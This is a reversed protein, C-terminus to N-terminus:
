EEIVETGKPAKFTFLRDDIATGEQAGAFTITSTNGFKDFITINTIRGKEDIVLVLKKMAAGSKKPLLELSRPSKRDPQLVNFDDRIHAAGLLFAVPVNMEQVDAFTKRIMQESKKSYFLATKGDVLIVQGNTYDVRLKGPKKIWLTGEFQQTKDISRLFNKQAVKATMTKVGGYHNEVLSVVDQVTQACAPEVASCTVVIAVVILSISNLLRTFTMEVEIACMM